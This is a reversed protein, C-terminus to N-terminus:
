RAWLEASSVPARESGDTGVGGAVLVPGDPLGTATHHHRAQVLPGAAVFSGSVPDWLEATAMPRGDGDGGGVILVRGDPSLTATHAARTETLSGAPSFSHNSVFESM